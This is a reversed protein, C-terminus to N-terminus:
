AEAKDKQGYERDALNKDELKLMSLIIVLSVLLMGVMGWYAPTMKTYDPPGDATALGVFHVMYPIAFAMIIAQITMIWKNAAQYKKRGYVYATVAPHMTPMGGTMCAVGFAWIAILIVPSDPNMITLPIVAVFYLLNLIVSAKMSGIKDDILGLVYSMPIGCAAGISLWLFVPGLGDEGFIFTYRVIMFAMMAVIIFQLLGYSIILKWSNINSIVEKFTMNEDENVDSTPTASGDAFLDVDEPKNKLLILTLIAVLLVVGGLIMYSGTLGLAGVLTTLLLIGCISFLPSGATVIGLARGRYKIWWNACLMFIGMQFPVVLTRVICLSIAYLVYNDLLESFGVGMTALGLIIFAPVMIFVPGKKVMAWGCFLYLPICLYGGVTIPNNIQGATWGADLLYPTIVNIHDNQLGSYLFMYVVGLILIPLGYRTFKANKGFM